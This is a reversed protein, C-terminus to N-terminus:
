EEGKEIKSFTKRKKISKVIFEKIQIAFKKTISIIGRTIKNFAFLLLVSIGFFALGTGFFFVAQPISKEFLFISGRFISFFTGAIIAFDTSYLTIIVAWVTIYLALIVSFAAILLPFWLPFGLILLIIEWIKMHSVGTAKERNNIKPAKPFPTDRLIQGSIEQIEGIAAIADSENLGDEIRDDIIESYYELSKEIDERPLESLSKKLEELFEAKNM